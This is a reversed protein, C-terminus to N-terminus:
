LWSKLRALSVRADENPDFDEPEHEFSIPGTFGDKLGIKVCQEVPVIGDGLACTEHGMDILQFGTKEARRAKVDKLHLHFIRGKLASVAEAADCDQTGFWGTDIAAGIVDGDGEGMRAALEAANKEPHNEVALRVGQERLIQVLGPRNGALLDSGGSILDCDLERLQRCVKRLEEEGSIHYAISTVKMGRRALAERAAAIHEPTAWRPNLHAVWLDVHSYGDAQVEGLMADFREAFTGAPSFWANTAEEGHTWGGTMHYGTERAVFNASIFSLVNM